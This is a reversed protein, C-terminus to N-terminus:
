FLSSTLRPEPGGTEPEILMKLYFLIAEAELCM